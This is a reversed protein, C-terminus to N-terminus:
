QQGDLGPLNKRNSAQAAILTRLGAKAATHPGRSIKAGPKGPLVKMRRPAPGTEGTGALSRLSDITERVRAKTQSDLGSFDADALSQLMERAQQPSTVDMTGADSGAVRSDGLAPLESKAGPLYDGDESSNQAGSGVYDTGKYPAREKTYHSPLRPDARSIPTGSEGVVDRAPFLGGQKGTQIVRLVETPVTVAPVPLQKGGRMEPLIKDPTGGQELGRLARRASVNLDGQPGGKFMRSAVGQGYTTREGSRGFFVRKVAESEHGYQEKQVGLTAKQNAIKMEVADGHLRQLQQIQDKPIDSVKALTSYEADRIMDAARRYADWAQLDADSATGSQIAKYARSAANGFEVRLQDLDSLHSNGYQSVDSAIQKLRGALQPSATREAKSINSLINKAVENVNVSATPYERMLTQYQRDFLQENTDFLDARTKVGRDVRFDGTKQNRAMEAMSKFPHRPELERSPLLSDLEKTSYGNEKAAMRLYPLMRDVIQGRQMIYKEDMGGEALISALNVRHSPTLVEPASTELGPLKNVAKGVMGQMAPVALFDALAASKNGARYNEVGRVPNGGAMVDAAAAATKLPAGGGAAGAQGIIGSAEKLGVPQFPSKVYDVMRGPLDKVEKAAGTAAEGALKPVESAFTNDQISGYNLPVKKADADIQNQIPNPAKPLGPRGAVQSDYHEGIRTIVLDQDSASLAGFDKDIKGLVAKKDNAPLALFDKDKLIDQPDQAM